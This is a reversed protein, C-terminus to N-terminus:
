TRVLAFIAGASAELERLARLGAVLALVVARGALKMNTAAQRLRALTHLAADALVLASSALTAAERATGALV